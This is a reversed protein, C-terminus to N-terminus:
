EGLQFRAVGASSHPGLDFPEGNWNVSVGEANGLVVSLPLEGNIDITEGPKALDLYLKEDNADRIEIWAEENVTIVLRAAQTRTAATDEGATDAIQATQANETAPAAPGVGEDIDLILPYDASGPIDPETDDVTSDPARYFPDDPHTISPYTYDFGGPYPGGVSTADPNVRDGAHEVIFESQWWILLLLVLGLSILYTMIKVPKDTSSFQPPRSVQPLIEPGTGTAAGSDFLRILEDSDLDLHRAVSRIYGKTYTPAALKDFQNSELADIITVQLHLLNALEERSLQKLERGARLREGVTQSGQEHTDEETTTM